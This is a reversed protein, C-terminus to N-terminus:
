MVEVKIGEGIIFENLATLQEHTGTLRLEVTKSEEIEQLQLDESEELIEGTEQDIINSDVQSEKLERMAQEYEAQAQQERLEREERERKAAVTADIQKMLESAFLGNEIQAVWSEPELGVAKAYNGIIAKESEIRKNADAIQKMQFIVEELTKKNLEGKTTFNGKNLWSPNITLESSDIGYNPSIEEITSVLKDLRKAKESEEFASISENIGESVLKIQNTYGNIKTEFEKLPKSYEKKVAKRQDDLLKAVKNLDAKAQKAEPINDDTFVLSGYRSITVDVLEKLKTENNITIESPKFDVKFELQTTLDNTM